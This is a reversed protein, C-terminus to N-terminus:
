SGPCPLLVVSGPQQLGAWAACSPRDCSLFFSFLPFLLHFLVLLGLVICFLIVLCPWTTQNWVSLVGPSDSSQRKFDTSTVWM